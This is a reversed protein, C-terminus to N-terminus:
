LYVGFSTFIAESEPDLLFANGTLLEGRLILQVTASGELSRWWTKKQPMGPRIYLTKGTQAYQVPLTYERGSKRGRYTILLLAASMLRHLPSRLVLRVFPNAIKNMFWMSCEM